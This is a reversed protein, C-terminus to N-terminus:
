DVAAPRNARGTQELWHRFMRTFDRAAPLSRLEDVRLRMKRRWNPYESTAGPLNRRETEKTLDAQNM